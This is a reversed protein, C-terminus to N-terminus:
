AGFSGLRGGGFCNDRIELFRERQHGITSLGLEERGLVIIYSSGSVKHEQKSSVFGSSREVIPHSRSHLSIDFNPNKMVWFLIDFISEM